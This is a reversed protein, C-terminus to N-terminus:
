GSSSVGSFLQSRYDQQQNAWDFWDNGGSLIWVNWCTITSLVAMLHLNTHGWWGQDLTRQSHTLAYFYILLMHLMSSSLSGDNKIIVISHFDGVKSFVDAAYKLNQVFVAEMQAAVEPQQSGAPFRGAMVHIRSSFHHVIGNLSGTLFSLIAAASWSDSGCSFQRWTLVGLPKQQM